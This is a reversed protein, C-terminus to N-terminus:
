KIITGKKMSLRIWHQGQTGDTEWYTDPNGDTLNEPGDEDQCSCFLNIPLIFGSCVAHYRTVLRIVVVLGM